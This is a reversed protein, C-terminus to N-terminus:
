VMYLANIWITPILTKLFATNKNNYDDSHTCVRIVSLNFLSFNM